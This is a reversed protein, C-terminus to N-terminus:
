AVFLAGTFWTIVSIATVANAALLAYGIRRMHRIQPPRLRLYLASAILPLVFLCERSISTAGIVCMLVALTLLVDNLRPVHHHTSTKQFAVVSRVSITTAIRGIVWASSLRIVAGSDTGGALLVATSPLTLGVIGTLQATLSRQWGAASMAFGAAAFVGCAFLTLRVDASGLWFAATGATLTTLLLFKLTHLASPTALRAREGRRGSMVMLPENAVFGAITALSTFIAVTNLGGLILAVLLPVGLIAYAGHEKPHLRVPPIAGSPRIAATTM